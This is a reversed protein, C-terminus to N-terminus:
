NRIESRLCEKDVRKRNMENGHRGRFNGKVVVLIECGRRLSSGENAIARSVVLLNSCLSILNSNTNESLLLEFISELLNSGGFKILLKGQNQLSARSKVKVFEVVFKIGDSGIISERDTTTGHSCCRGM